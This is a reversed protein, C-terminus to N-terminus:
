SCASRSRTSRRAELWRFFGVVGQFEEDGELVCGATSRPCTRGPCTWPSAAAARSGACSPRAPGQLPAQELARDRGASLTKAQRPDGPGPRGRDPQRLRPLHPLRRLPQQLLLPAAAAGRLRARLARLRLGRLLAAAARGRGARPGPRRGRRLGDGALRRPALRPDPGAALRDVLVLLPDAQAAPSQPTSARWAVGSGRRGPAPPLRAEAPARLLDARPTGGAALPFGVLVRAGAPCGSCGSPWRSRPTRRSRPAAATASPGGWAPSCCACTTTSRPRPPWPPARTARRRASASRWRPASATSPLRGDPKEMRELFQRAYASLSEVYRRQGEAYLTDFALSSKGSGSVGTVVVLRGTPVVVDISKLNHVRIAGRVIAEPMPESHRQRARRGCWSHGIMGDRGASEPSVERRLGLLDKGERQRPRLPRRHQDRALRAKLAELAADVETKQSIAALQRDLEEGESVAITDMASLKDAQEQISGATKDFVSVAGDINYEDTIEQMRRQADNM